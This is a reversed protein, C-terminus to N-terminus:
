MVVENFLKSKLPNKILIPYCNIVNDFISYSHERKKQKLDDNTIGHIEEAKESIDQEPNLYQQYTKGTPIHNILEVCGIEIIKDGKAFELGTTETDLVIERM